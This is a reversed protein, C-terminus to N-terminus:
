QRLVDDKWVATNDSKEVKCTATNSKKAAYQIIIKHYLFVVKELFIM